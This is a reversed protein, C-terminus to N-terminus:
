LHVATSVVDMPVTTSNATIVDYPALASAGDKDSGPVCSDTGAVSVVNGSSVAPFASSSSTNNNLRSQEREEEPPLPEEKEDDHTTHQTQKQAALTKKAKKVVPPAIPPLDSLLYSQNLGIINDDIEQLTNRKKEGFYELLREQCKEGLDNTLFWNSQQDHFGVSYKFSNRPYNGKVAQNITESLPKLDLRTSDLKEMQQEIMTLQDYM